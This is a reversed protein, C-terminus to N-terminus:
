PHPLTARERRRGAGPGPCHLRPRVWFTRASLPRHATSAVDSTWPPVECAAAGADPSLESPWLLIERARDAGRPHGVPVCTGRRGRLEPVFGTELGLTRGSRGNGRVRPLPALRFRWGQWDVTSVATPGRGSVSGGVRQVARGDAVPRHGHDDECGLRVRLRDAGREWRAMAADGGLRERLEACAGADGLVAAKRAVRLNRMVLSALKRETALMRRASGALRRWDAETRLQRVGALMGAELRAVRERLCTEARRLVREVPPRLRALVQAHHPTNSGDMGVAYPRLGAQPYM